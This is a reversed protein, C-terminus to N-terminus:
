FWGRYKTEARSIFGAESKVTKFLLKKGTQIFRLPGNLFSLIIQFNKHNQNTSTGFIQSVCLISLYQVTM